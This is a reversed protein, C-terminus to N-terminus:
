IIFNNYILKVKRCIIRLLFLILLSERKMSLDKIEYSKLIKLINYWLKGKNNIFSNVVEGLGCIELIEEINQTIKIYLRM